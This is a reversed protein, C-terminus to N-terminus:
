PLQSSRAPLAWKLAFVRRTSIRGLAPLIFVQLLKPRRLALTTAAFGWRRRWILVVIFPIARRGCGVGPM